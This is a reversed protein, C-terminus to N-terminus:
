QAPPKAAPTPSPQEEAGRVWDQWEQPVEKARAIAERGLSIARAQTSAADAEGAAQQVAGLLALLQAYGFIRDPDALIAAASSSDLRPLVLSLPGLHQQLAESIHERALDLDPPGPGHLLRAVVRAIQEIWRLFVDRQPM